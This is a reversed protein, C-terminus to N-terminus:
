GDGIVPRARKPNAGLSPFGNHHMCKGPLVQTRDPGPGEGGRALGIEVGKQAGRLTSPHHSTSPPHHRGAKEQDQCMGTM